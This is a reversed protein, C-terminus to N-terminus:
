KFLNLKKTLTYLIELEKYFICLISTLQYKTFIFIIPMRQRWHQRNIYILVELENM